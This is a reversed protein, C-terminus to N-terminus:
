EQTISWSYVKGDTATTWARTGEVIVSDMKLYVTPLTPPEVVPNLTYQLMWEYITKDFPHYLTTDGASTTETLVNNYVTTWSDHSRNTFVTRQAKGPYVANYKKIFGESTAVKNPDVDRAGHFHWVPRNKNNVPTFSNSNISIPVYAAIGDYGSTLYRYVGNGGSSLGSYYIREPDVNPLHSYYQVLPDIYIKPDFWGSFSWPAVVIFPIDLGNMLSKALGENLVADISSKAGIGHTFIIVPMKTSTQKGFEWYQITTGNTTITKKVPKVQGFCTFSLLLLLLTLKKM